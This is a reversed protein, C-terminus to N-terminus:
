SLYSDISERKVDVLLIVRDETGLNWASHVQTDDFMILRGESWNKKAGNVEIAANDNTQLGLHIRLVKKSYGYHREIVCGPKMVSFGFTLAGPIGNCLQSTFPAQAQMELNKGQFRLGIVAWRGNHIPEPWSTAKAQIQNYEDRITTWNKALPLLPKVVSPDLFSM